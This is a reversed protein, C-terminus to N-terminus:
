IPAVKPQGGPKRSGHGHHSDEAAGGVGEDGGKQQGILQKAPGPQLQNRQAAPQTIHERAIMAQVAALCEEAIFEVRLVRGPPFCPQVMSKEMTKGKIKGVPRAVIVITEDQTFRRHPCVPDEGVRHLSLRGPAGPAALPKGHGSVRGGCLASAFRQRTHGNCCLSHRPKKLGCLEPPVTSRQQIQINLRKM